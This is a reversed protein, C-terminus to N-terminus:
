LTHVEECKNGRSVFTSRRSSGRVGRESHVLSISNHIQHRLQLIVFRTVDSYISLTLSDPSLPMYLKSKSGSLSTQLWPHHGKPSPPPSQCLFTYWKMKWWARLFIGWWIHIVASYKKVSQLLAPPFHFAKTTPVGYILLFDESLLNWVLISKEHFSPFM